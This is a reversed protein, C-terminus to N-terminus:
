DQSLGACTCEWTPSDLTDARKNATRMIGMINPAMDWCIRLPVRRTRGAHDWLRFVGPWADGMSGLLVELATALERCMGAGLWCCQVTWNMIPLDWRGSRRAVEKSIHRRVKVNQEGNLLERSYWLVERLLERDARWVLGRLMTAQPGWYGDALAHAM